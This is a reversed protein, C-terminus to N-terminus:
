CKMPWPKSPVHKRLYTGPDHQGISNNMLIGQLSCPSYGGAFSPIRLCHYPMTQMGCQGETWSLLLNPRWPVHHFAFLQIVPSGVYCVALSEWTHDMGNQRSNNNKKPMTRIWQRLSVGSDRTTCYLARSVRM